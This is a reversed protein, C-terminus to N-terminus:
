LIPLRGSVPDSYYYEANILRSCCSANSATLLTLPCEGLSESQPRDRSNGMIADRCKRVRLRKKQDWPKALFDGGTIQGRVLKTRGVKSRRPTTTPITIDYIIMM